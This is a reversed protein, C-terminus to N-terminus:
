RRGGVVVDDSTRAIPRALGYVFPLRFLSAGRSPRAIRDRRAPGRGNAPHVYRVKTSQRPVPIAPGTPLCSTSYSAAVSPPWSMVPVDRRTSPRLIRRGELALNRSSDAERGDRLAPSGGVAGRGELFEDLKERQWTLRGKGGRRGNAEVEGRRRASPLGAPSRYGCDLAAERTTLAKRMQQGRLTDLSDRDM